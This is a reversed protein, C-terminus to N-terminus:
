VRPMMNRLHAWDVFYRVRAIIAERSLGSGHEASRDKWVTFTGDEDRLAVFNAEHLSRMSPNRVECQVNGLYDVIFAATKPIM